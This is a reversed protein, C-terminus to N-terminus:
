GSRRNREIVDPILTTIRDGLAPDAARILKEFVTAATRLEDDTLPEVLLSRVHAAHLPAAARVTDLGAETLTVENRRRGASSAHREVWGRSELRTVAHSLRSLSGFAVEALDTMALRHDSEESLMELITYEFLNVGSDRKLQGDISAPLTELLVVLGMWAELQAEDLWPGDETSM